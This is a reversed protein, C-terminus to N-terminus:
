LNSLICDFELVINYVIKNLEQHYKYFVIEINAHFYFSYGKKSLIIM